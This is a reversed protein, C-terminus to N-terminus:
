QDVKTILLEQGLLIIIPAHIAYVGDVRFTYTWKINVVQSLSVKPKKLTSEKYGWLSIDANRGNKLVIQLVVKRSIKDSEVYDQVRCKLTSNLNPFALFRLSSFRLQLWSRSQSNPQCSHHLTNQWFGQVLRLSYIWGSMIFAATMCNVLGNGISYCWTFIDTWTHATFYRKILESTVSLGCM